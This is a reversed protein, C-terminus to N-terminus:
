AALLKGEPVRMMVLPNDVPVVSGNVWVHDNDHEPADGRIVTVDVV